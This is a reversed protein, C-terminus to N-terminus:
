SRVQGCPVSRESTKSWFHRSEWAEGERNGWNQGLHRKQENIEKSSCIGWLSINQGHPLLLVFFLLRVIFCWFQCTWFSNQATFFYRSLHIADFPSYKTPSQLKLCTLIFAHKYNKLIYISPKLPNEMM